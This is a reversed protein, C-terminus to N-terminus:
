FLIKLVSTFSTRSNGFWFTCFSILFQMPLRLSILFWWLWLHHTFAPAWSDHFIPGFIYQLTLENHDKKMHFLFDMVGSHPSVESWSLLQAQLYFFLLLFCIGLHLASLISDLTFVPISVFYLWFLLHRYMICKGLFQSNSFRMSSKRNHFISVKKVM